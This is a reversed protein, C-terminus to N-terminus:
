ARRTPLRAMTADLHKGTRSEYNTYRKAPLEAPMTPAPRSATYNIAPKVPTTHQNDNERSVAGAMASVTSLTIANFALLALNM